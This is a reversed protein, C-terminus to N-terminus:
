RKFKDKLKEIADEMSLEKYQNEDNVIYIIFDLLKNILNSDVVIKGGHAVLNRKGNIEKWNLVQEKMFGYRYILLASVIFYCDIRGLYDAEKPEYYKLNENYKIYSKYRKNRTDSKNSDTILTLVLHKKDNCFVFSEEGMEFVTDLSIFDEIIQFLQLYGYNNYKADRISKAFLEFAIDLNRTTRDKFDGSIKTNIDLTSKIINSKFVIHKLFGLKFCDNVQKTFSKFNIVSFSGDINYEPSEKVYFGNSGIYELEKVNWAKNSATFMIVQVGKNESKIEKLLQAGSYKSATKFAEKGKDEKEDLRLDLLILDWKSVGNIKERIKIEAEKIFNESQPILEFNAGIFVNKLVVGWGKDVEDDILLINKGRSNITKKKSNVHSSFSNQNLLFKLYLDSLNAKIKHDTNFYSFLLKSQATVAALRIVGWINGISHNGFRPNKKIQIIDLFSEKFNEKNLITYNSTNEILIKALFLDNFTLVAATFLLSATTNAKQSIQSKYIEQSDRTTYIFFTSYSKDGLENSSLRIRICLELGLYNLSDDLSDPIIIGDFSYNILTSVFDELRERYKGADFELIQITINKSEIIFTSGIPRILLIKM